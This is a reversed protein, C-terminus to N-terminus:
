RYVHDYKTRFYSDPDSEDGPGHPRGDDKGDAEWRKLITEVYRWSRKNYTVAMRIAEEIWPLPYQKEATRLVEAMMPTLPGINQEYLAFANPRYILVRDIPQPGLAGALAAYQGAQLRAVADRSAETNLFYWVQRLTGRVLRVQLLTGRTVTLELGERLFDEAPRPGDEIRIGTMFTQDALLDRYEVCRPRGTRQSLVWMLQLTVKLELASRIRPALDTFFESPVGVRNPSSAEFGAFSHGSNRGAERKARSGGAAVM